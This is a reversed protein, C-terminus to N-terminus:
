KVAGIDRVKKPTNINFHIPYGVGGKVIQYFPETTCKRRSINQVVTFGENRITQLYEKFLKLREKLRPKYMRSNIEAM